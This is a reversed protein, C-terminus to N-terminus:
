TANGSTYSFRRLDGTRLDGVHLDRGPGTDAAVSFPIGAEATDLHRLVELTSDDLIDVGRDSAVVVRHANANVAIERAPGRLDVRQLVTRTTRDLATLSPRTGGGGLGGVYIRDNVPDVAVDNPQVLEEGLPVLPLVTTTQGDDVVSGLATVTPAFSRHNHAVHITDTTEDVALSLGGRAVPISPLRTNTAGDIVDIRSAFPNAVYVRNTRPNVAIDSPTNGIPVEAIVSMTSRDIVSVSLSPAVVNIVYIRGTRDNVAVGAPKFGVPIRNTVQMTDRDIVVLSGPRPSANPPAPRAYFHTAYVHEADMAVGLSPSDFGALSADLAVTRNGVLETDWFEQIRESEAVTLEDSSVKGESRLGARNLFDWDDAGEMIEDAGASECIEGLENSDANLDIALDKDDTDGDFNWDIAEDVAARRTTGSDDTWVTQVEPHETVGLLETESLNDDEGDVPSERLTPLAERSFDFVRDTASGDVRMGGFMTYSMTSLYNPKCNINDQVDDVDDDVDSDPGGHDLGLGHGLEHIFTHSQAEVSPASGLSVVYDLRTPGFCCLGLADAHEGRLADAWLNYHIYQAVNGPLETEDAKIGALDERPDITAQLPVLNTDDIRYVLNIGTDVTADEYPCDPVPDIPADAFSAVIRNLAREEPRRDIGAGGNAAPGSMYDIEVFVDKRCPSAGLDPLNWGPVPNGDEDNLGTLEVRDPIGDADLDGSGFQGVAFDDESTNVANNDFNSNFRTDVDDDGPGAHLVDIRGDEGANAILVEDLGDADVDGAALKDAEDDDFGTEDVTAVGAGPDHDEGDQAHLIDIRGEEGANAVIVEARGDGTVDGVALGDVEDGGDYASDFSSVLDGETDTITIAGNEQDAVVVEVKGDGTVDGVAFGDDYNSDFGGIDEATGDAVDYVDLFGNDFEATIIEGVGDGTVDGVAVQDEDDGVDAVFPAVAGFLVDVRGTGDNTSDTDTVVVEQEVDRDVNGVTMEDDDDFATDTGDGPGRAGTEDHVDLMGEEDNVVYILAGATAAAQAQSDAGPGAAALGLAAALVAVTACVGWVRARLTLFTNV